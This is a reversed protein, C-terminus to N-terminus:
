VRSAIGPTAGGRTPRLQFGNFLGAVNTKDNGRFRSDIVALQAGIWGQIGAKAPM